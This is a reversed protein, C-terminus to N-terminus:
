KLMIWRSLATAAEPLKGLGLKPVILLPEVWPLRLKFVVLKALPPVSLSGISIMCVTTFTAMALSRMHRPMPRLLVTSLPGECSSLLMRMSWSLKSM